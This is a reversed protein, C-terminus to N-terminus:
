HSMESIHLNAGVGADAEIWKAAEAKEKRWYGKAGDAVYHGVSTTPDTGDLTYRAAGGDLTWEVHTTIANLDTAIMAAATGDITLTQDAVAVGAITNSPILNTDLNTILNAPM